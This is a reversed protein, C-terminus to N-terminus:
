SQAGLAAKIREGAMIDFRNMAAKWGQLHEWKAILNQIALFILKLAAEENPFSGRSRIIKRITSNLSEVANTTYILKRIEEPFAFFPTLTEWNSEWLKGISPYKSDWKSQFGELELRAQPETPARYIAKLDTAVEKREKWNVYNLSARVAHVICCQVLALPFVTEIAQPFGKLGDVCVVLLDKVGRNKLETLVGLWFKSGETASTWLGLVDKKGQADVGIAVFIARNEVRGNHRIKVMLADLYVLVYLPELPRNQWAKVEEMVENTVESILGASVEVGYMEQFHAQIDRTSMGRAYMSIMKADLGMLRTQHKGILQPEFEGNRDRPVEIVMQGLDGKITKPSTGNRSNGSGYGAVAHKEYGLQHTLEGRLAREFVRKMMQRMLETAGAEDLPGTRGQWAEDLMVDFKEVDLKM